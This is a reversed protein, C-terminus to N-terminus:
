VYSNRHVNLVPTHRRSELLNLLAARGNNQRYACEALTLFDLLLFDVHPGGNHTLGENFAANEYLPPLLISAILQSGPAIPKPPNGNTMEQFPGLWRNGDFPLRAVKLLLKIEWPLDEANPTVKVEPVRMFIEIRRSGKGGDPPLPMLQDSMGSTIITYFNRAMQPGYVLVDIGRSHPILERSVVLRQGFFRRYFLERDRSWQGPLDLGGEHSGTVASAQPSKTRFREFLKM